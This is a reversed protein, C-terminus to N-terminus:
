HRVHYDKHRQFAELRALNRAIEGETYAIEEDTLERSLKERAEALTREAHLGEITDAHEAAEVALTAGEETITLMGDGIAYHDISSGDRLELVGIKVPAVMPMHDALVAITGTPTPIHVEEIEGEYITGSPEVVKLTLTAM